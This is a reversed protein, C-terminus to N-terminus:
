QKMSNSCRLYNTNQRSIKAILYPVQRYTHIAGPMLISTITVPKSDNTSESQHSSSTQTQTFQINVQDSDIAYTVENITMPEVPDHSTSLLKMKGLHRHKPLVIEDASTNVTTWLSQLPLKEGFIKLVPVIFYQQLEHQVLSDIM